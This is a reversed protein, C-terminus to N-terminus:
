QDLSNQCNVLKRYILLVIGINGKINNCMSQQNYINHFAVDGKNEHKHREHINPYKLHQM